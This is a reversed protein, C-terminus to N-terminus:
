REDGWDEEEDDARRAAKCLALVFCLFILGAMVILAALIIKFIIPTM